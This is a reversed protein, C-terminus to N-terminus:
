DWQISMGAAAKYFFYQSKEIFIAGYVWLHLTYLSLSHMYQVTSLCQNQWYLKQRFSFRRVGGEEPVSTTYKYRSHM